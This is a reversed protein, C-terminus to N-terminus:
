SPVHHKGKKGSALAKRRPDLMLLAQCDERLSVWGQSLVDRFLMLCRSIGLSHSLCLGWLLCIVFELVLVSSITPRGLLWFAVTARCSTAKVWGVEQGDVFLTLDASPSLATKATEFVLRVQCIAATLSCSRNSLLHSFFMDSFRLYRSGAFSPRFNGLSKLGVAGWLPASLFELGLFTEGSDASYRSPATSAVECHLSVERRMFRLFWSVVRPTYFVPFHPFSGWVHSDTMNSKQGFQFFVHFVHFCTKKTSNSLHLLTSM